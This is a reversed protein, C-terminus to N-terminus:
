ERTRNRPHVDTRGEAAALSAQPPRGRPFSGPLRRALEAAGLAAAGPGTQGLVIPVPSLVAPLAPARALQRRAPGLILDGASMAVSGSLVVLDPDLVPTVCAVARAVAGGARALLGTAWADGGRAAAVVQRATIQGPRGGALSLIAAGEPQGAQARAQAALGPGSAYLELCGRGGCCCDPGAPDIPLHGIEAALGHSGGALAGSVVIGGGVGTGLTIVLLVEAPQGAGRVYEAFAAANGDNEMLVPCNLRAEALGPLPAASLGLNAATRVELRDRSLWGAVSLGVATLPGPPGAARHGAARHGAARQAPALQRAAVGRAGLERSALERSALDRSALEGVVEAILNVAEDPGAIAHEQWIEGRVAGSDDLLVAAIKSGGLDVGAVTV